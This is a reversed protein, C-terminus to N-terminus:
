ASESYESREPQESYDFREPQEPYKPQEPKFEPKFFDAVPPAIDDPTLGFGARGESRVEVIEDPQAPDVFDTVLRLVNNPLRIEARRDRALVEQRFRGGGSSQLEHDNLANLTLGGDDAIGLELQACSPDFSLEGTETEGLPMGARVRLVM